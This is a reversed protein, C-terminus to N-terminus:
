VFLVSTIFLGVTFAIALMLYSWGKLKYALYMFIPFSVTQYRTFSILDKSIFPTLWLIFSIWVLERKLIKRMKIIIFLTTILSIVEIKSLRFYHLPLFPFIFIMATNYLFWFPFYSKTYWASLAKYFYLPNGTQYHCYAMWIILLSSSIIIIQLFKVKSIYNSRLLKFLEYIFYINLLLANGKTVNLLSLFLASIFFRKKILFYAFWILLFLQSGESFYSRYFISFPFLFILFITKYALTQSYLKTIVFYLSFFNLVLYLIALTFASIEINKIFINFFKITFPYAPFFAYSRAEMENLRELQLPNPDKPYGKDAIKLYWQADYVGLSRLFTYRGDLIREDTVYHDSHLYNVKKFLITGHYLYIFLFLIVNLACFISFLFFIKKHKRIFNINMISVNLKITFEVNGRFM